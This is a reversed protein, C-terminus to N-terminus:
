LTAARYETSDVRSIYEETGILRAPAHGDEAVVSQMEGSILGNGVNHNTLRLTFHKRLAEPKQFRLRAQISIPQSVQSCGPVWRQRRWFLLVTLLYASCMLKLKCSFIM